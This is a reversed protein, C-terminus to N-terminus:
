ELLGELVEQYQPNHTVGNHGQNELEILRIDDFAAKLQQAHNFPILEDQNGHFITIPMNCKKLYQDTRFQYKLMISAPILPIFKQVLKKLSYYPTQLILMKPQNESALKAAMGSGISYGLVIIDEEKYRQKMLNYATQNDEFIQEQSHIKGESKGYGRYDLIFIDYNSRTYIPAVDGWRNLAGANGHLYFILGKPSPSSFLLGHLKTGDKAPLTVEEFPGSFRFAHDTALKEPLFILREQFFYLFLCAGLYIGALVQLTTIM